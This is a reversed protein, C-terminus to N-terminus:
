LLSKLTKRMMSKIDFGMLMEAALYVAAGIAIVAALYFISDAILSLPYVVAAMALTGALPRALHRANFRVGFDRELLGVAAIFAAVRVIISALAAGVVGMAPIMALNLAVNAISSAAVIKAVTQPRKMASFMNFVAGAVMADFCFYALIVLIIGADAYQPGFLVNVVPGGLLALGGAAPVAFFSIYKVTKDFYARLKEPEDNAGVMFPFLVGNVTSIANAATTAITAAIRYFGVYIPSMLLGLMVSDTWSVIAWGLGIIGAYFGYSVIGRKDIKAPRFTIFRRIYFFAIATAIGTALAYGVIAGFAAWGYFILVVPMVLKLVALAFNAVTYQKFNKLGTLISGVFYLLLLLAMYVSSIVITEKPIKFTAALFDSALYVALSLAIILLIKYKLLVSAYSKRGTETKEKAIFYTASYNLGLDGLTALLSVLSLAVSFVGWLEADLLRSMLITSLLGFVLTLGTGLYLWFSGRVVRSFTNDEAM